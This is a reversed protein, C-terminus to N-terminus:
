KSQHPQQHVLQRQQLSLSYSFNLHGQLMYSEAVLLLYEIKPDQFAEELLSLTTKVLNIAGRETKIKIEVQEKKM